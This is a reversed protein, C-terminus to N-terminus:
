LSASRSGSRSIVSSLVILSATALLFGRRVAFPEQGQLCLQINGPFIWSDITGRSNGGKRSLPRPWGRSCAAGLFDATVEEVEEEDIAVSRNRWRLRRRSLHGPPRNMATLRVSRSGGSRSTKRRVFAHLLHVLGQM